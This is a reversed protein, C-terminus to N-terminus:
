AGAGSSILRKSCDARGGRAPAMPAPTTRQIMLSTRLEAVLSLPMGAEIASLHPACRTFSATEPPKAIALAAIYLLARRPALAGNARPSSTPPTGAARFGQLFAV